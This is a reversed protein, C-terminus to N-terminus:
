KLGLAKKLNDGWYLARGQTLNNNPYFRAGVWPKIDLIKAAAAYSIPSYYWTNQAVDSYPAGIGMNIVIGGSKDFVSGFLKAAEARTVYQNVGFAGNANGKLLGQQVLNCIYFAYWENGKVDSFGCGNPYEAANTFNGSTWVLKALEARTIDSNPNTPFNGQFLSGNFGFYATALVVVGVLGGLLFKVNKKM